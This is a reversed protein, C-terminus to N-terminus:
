DWRTTASSFYDAVVDDLMTFRVGARLMRRCLSWDSPTAFLSAALELEMFRLDRHFIAGQWGFQGQRPPFEGVEFTTGDRLHSRLKGYAVEARERRALALLREVHDPTFADDADLPAIWLGQALRVAENRPPV